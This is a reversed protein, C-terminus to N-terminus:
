STFRTANSAPYSAASSREDSGRVPLVAAPLSMTRWRAPAAGFTTGKVACFPEGRLACRKLSISCDGAGAPLCVFCLVALGCNDARLAGHKWRTRPVIPLAAPAPCTRGSPRLSFSGDPDRFIKLLFFAFMERETGPQGLYRCGQRPFSYSDCIDKRKRRLEPSTTSRTM